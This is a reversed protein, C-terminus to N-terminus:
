WQKWRWKGRVHASPRIERPWIHAPMQLNIAPQKEAENKAHLVRLAETRETTKLSEQKGTVSDHVYFRGGHKRRYLRFRQNMSQRETLLSLGSIRFLNAFPAHCRHPESAPVDAPMVPLAM